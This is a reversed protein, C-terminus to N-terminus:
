DRAAEPEPPCPEGLANFHETAVLPAPLVRACLTCIDWGPALWLVDPQTPEGAKDEAHNACFSLVIGSWDFTVVAGVRCGPRACPRGHHVPPSPYAAATTM